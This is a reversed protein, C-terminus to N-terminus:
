QLPAKGDNALVSCSQLPPCIVYWDAEGHELLAKYSKFGEPVPQGAHDFIFIHSRPVDHRAELITDLMDPECIIFKAHVTNVQHAVEFPTYAPNTGTYIGGAALIGLALVPYFLQLM